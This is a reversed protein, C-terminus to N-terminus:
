KIAKSWADSPDTRLVEWIQYATGIPEVPAFYRHDANQLLLLQFVLSQAINDSVVIVNKNDVNVFAHLRSDPRFDVTSHGVDSYATVKALNHAGDDTLIIGNEMDIVASDCHLFHARTYQYTMQNFYANKSEVRDFNWSGYYFWWYASDLLSHDLFLYVPRVDKPYFHKFWNGPPTLGEAELHKRAPLPGMSYITKGIKLAKQWGGVARALDDFGKRGRHAYFYMFNASRQQDTMALPLAISFVDGICMNDAIVTRNSWYQLALGSDWWCYIISDSPTMRLKTMGEVVTPSIKPIFTQSLKSHIGPMAPACFLIIVIMRTLVAKNSLNCRIYIQSFLYAIGLATIPTLFFLFRKGTIFSSYGLVVIVALHLIVVPKRYLALLIGASALIFILINGYATKIFFELTPRQLESVSQSVEPFIDSPLLKAYCILREVGKYLLQPVTDIPQNFLAPLCSAAVALVLAIMFIVSAEKFNRKNALYVIVSLSLTISCYVLVAYPRWWFFFLVSFILALILYKVRWTNTTKNFSLAFAAICLMFVVNLMDTDYYGCTTRYSYYFNSACYFSALYGCLNNALKRGFYFVPFVILSGFIPPLICASWLLSLGTLRSLYFTILSLLPPINPYYLPITPCRLSQLSNPVYSSSNLLDAIHLYYYGDITLILPNSEYFVQDKLQGWILLDDFRLIVSYLFILVLIFPARRVFHLWRKSQVHSSPMQDPHPM